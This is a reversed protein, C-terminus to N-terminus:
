QRAPPNGRPACATFQEIEQKTKPIDIAKLAEPSTAGIWEVAAGPQAFVKIPYEPRFLLNLGVLTARVAAARLGTGLVVYALAKVRSGRGKMARSIEARTAADPPPHSSDIVVLLAWQAGPSADFRAALVKDLMRAAAVTVTGEYRLAIVSGSLGVRVSDRHVLEEM